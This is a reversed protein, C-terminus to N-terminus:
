NVPSIIHTHIPFPTHYVELIFCQIKLYVVYTYKFV